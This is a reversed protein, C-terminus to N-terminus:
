RRALGRNTPTKAQEPEVMTHKGRVQSRLRRRMELAGRLSKRVNVAKKARAGLGCGGAQRSAKRSRPDSRPM